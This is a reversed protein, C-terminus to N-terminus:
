LEGRLRIVLVIVSAALMAVGIWYLYRCRKTDAERVMRGLHLDDSHLSLADDKM